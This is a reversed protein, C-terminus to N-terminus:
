DTSYNHFSIIYNRVKLSDRLQKVTEWESEFLEYECKKQNVTGGLRSTGRATVTTTKEFFIVIAKYLPLM